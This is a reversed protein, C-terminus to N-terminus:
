LVSLRGTSYIKNESRLSWFCIGPHLDSRRLALTEGPGAHRIYIIRGLDDYIIFDCAPLGAPFTVISIDKLPDPIVSVDFEKQYRNVGSGVDMIGTIINDIMWGEKNNQINDSHFTFRIYISDPPFDSSHKDVPMWWWWIYTSRIWGNSHGSPYIVHAMQQANSLVQDPRWFLMVCSGDNCGSDKLVKWNLGHDYSVEVSGYDDLTDTDFMHMYQLYNAGGYYGTPFSFYFSCDLNVDYPNVTDTVIALPLSWSTNFYTKSPHGVQWRDQPQPAQDIFYPLTNYEFFISDVPYLDGFTKQAYSNISALILFLTFLRKM